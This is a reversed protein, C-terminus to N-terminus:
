ESSRRRLWWGYAGRLPATVRWSMSTRLAAIEDNATGLASELASVRAAAQDQSDLTGLRSKLLALEDKRLAVAPELEAAIQRELEDNRRLLAATDGDQHLLVELLNAEYIERHKALRYEALPLHDPGHWCATSMSGRRRRYNFLIEPLIVGRHGREVLTLWLDWDEDGQRPMATDYGGIAAVADRRVIAATLVTNEWLLTPVDCREPTWDWQEDGFTRLWASVFTVSPDRDLVEVAKALYSPELRDDADLACLYTGTTHAIGTNRAAALGAHAMRLVRTKPRNYQALREVTIADTSGDDVIVIELDQFTQALVSDVAEDLYQGLDYCPVIVSVRPQESRPSSVAAEM